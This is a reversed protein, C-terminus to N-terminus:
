PSARGRRAASAVLRAVETRVSTVFHERGRRADIRVEWEGTHRADLAAVYRGPSREVLTDALVENARANFRAQVTVNASTVPALLSDVITVVLTGRAIAAAATWRLAVSRQEEAMTSDFAVAKKYYDPEVAFSPDNGAVHMMMLNGGVFVTLLLTIGVPWGWAKGKM